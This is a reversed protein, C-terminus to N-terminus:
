NYGPAYKQLLRNIARGLLFNPDEEATEFSEWSTTPKDAELMKYSRMLLGLTERMDPDLCASKVWFVMVYRVGKTVPSVCHPTGTDYLVASGAPPKFRNIEGVPKLCIEGGEFDDSLFVSVSYHGLKPNDQHVKFKEGAETKSILWNEIQGPQIMLKLDTLRSFANAVTQGIYIANDDKFAEKNDQGPHLNATDTFDLLPLLNQIEALEESSLLETQTILM